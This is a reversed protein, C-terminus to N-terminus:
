DELVLIGALEKVNNLGELNLIMEATVSLDKESLIGRTFKSYLERFQELTLPDEPHGLAYTKEGSFERGDKTKIVIRAPTDRADSVADSLDASLNDAQMVLKVRSRAQRLRADVVADPTFHQLNADGDLMAAALANQFSFQLDNEDKPEPRNVLEEGRGSTLVEIVEIDGYPLNHKKKLEIVLDIHRHLIICCPYKKVQIERLVWRKGLDEVMKDPAVYEKGLYDTLYTAIDPNGRLGVNAMEAAIMGQLSMLASEFYHADTGLNVMSLPVGSMALGVAAATENVDLNLAKAAGVAPGVAGPVLNLGLHWADFLCTRTHVELGLVLAEILAKGSLELKEALSLLLPIVTIDWSVGELWRDDELESAHAFYANLFLGEWLSTKFGSGMVGVEEPLRRDRIVGAMKQGSPKRSGALMGAVTKLTLCKTFELTEKPIDEYKTNVAFEVLQTGIDKEM